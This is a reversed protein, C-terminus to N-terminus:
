LYAIILKDTADTFMLRLVNLNDLPMRVAENAALPWGDDAAATKHVNVYITGKNAPAARLLVSVCPISLRELSPQTGPITLLSPTM